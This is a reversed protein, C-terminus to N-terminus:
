LIMHFVFSFFFPFNFLFIIFVCNIFFLELKEDLNILSQIWHIKKM